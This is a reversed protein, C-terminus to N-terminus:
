WSILYKFNIKRVPSQSAVRSLPIVWGFDLCKGYLVSGSANECEERRGERGKRYFRKGTRDAFIRGIRTMRPLTKRGEHGDVGDEGAFEALGFAELFEKVGQGFGRAV